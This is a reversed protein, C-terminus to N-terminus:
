LDLTLVHEKLWSRTIKFTDTHQAVRQWFQASHNAHILHCLEHIVIDDIVWDPAMILRWNFYIRGDQHCSGWRSRYSKVGVLLPRVGIQQSFHQCRQRMHSLAEHQYWIAILQAILQQPIPQTGEPIVPLSLRLAGDEIRCDRKEHDFLLPYASGRFQFLEGAVYSKAQYQKRIERNYTTKQEIWPQKEQVIRAIEHECLNAPAHVEIRNDYHVMIEVTRRRPKRIIHYDFPITTDATTTNTM